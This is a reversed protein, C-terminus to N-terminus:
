FSSCKVLTKVESKRNRIDHIYDDERLRLLVHSTCFSLLYLSIPIKLFSNTHFMVYPISAMLIHQSTLLGLIAIGNKITVSCIM